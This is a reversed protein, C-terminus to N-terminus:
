LSSVKEKRGPGGVLSTGPSPEEPEQRRQAAAASTTTAPGTPVFRSRAVPSCTNSTQALGVGLGEAALLFGRETDTLEPWAWSCSPLELSPLSAHFLTM